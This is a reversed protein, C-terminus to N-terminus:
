SGGLYRLAETILRRAEPSETLKRARILRVKAREVDYPAQHTGFSEMPVDFYRAIKELNGLQPRFIGREWRSWRGQHTKSGFIEIVAQNQSLGWLERLRRLQAGISAALPDIM